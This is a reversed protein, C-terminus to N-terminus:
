GLSNNKIYDECQSLFELALNKINETNRKDFYKDNRLKRKYYFIKEPFDNLTINFIEKFKKCIELDIDPFYEGKLRLMDNALWLVSYFIVELYLSNKLKVQSIKVGDPLPEIYEIKKNIIWSRRAPIGDINNFLDIHVGDSFNNIEKISKGLLPPYYQFSYRVTISEYKNFSDKSYVLFHILISKPKKSVIKIPGIKFTYNIEIENSSYNNKIKKALKKLKILDKNSIRDYILVFDLDNSSELKKNPNSFSGVLTLSILDKENNLNKICDKIIKKTILTM